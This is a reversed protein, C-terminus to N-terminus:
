FTGVLDVGSPAQAGVLYKALYNGPIYAYGADGWTTSWSNKIIFYGSLPSDLSSSTENLPANPIYKLISSRPVYGIAEVAHYGLITDPNRLKQTLEPADAYGAQVSYFRPTVAFSIMLPQSSNLYTTMLQLSQTPNSFDWLESYTKVRIGSVSSTIPTLYGCQYKQSSSNIACVLDGQHVTNSCAGSYTDCANTIVQLSTNQPSAVYKIKPSQNYQWYRELPFIYGFNKAYNLISETSYGETQTNYSTPLSPTYDDSWFLKSQNYIAQESLNLWIQKHSAIYSELAGAAAFATCSGRSGQDKICSQYNRLAFTFRKMLGISSFNQPLIAGDLGSLSGIEKNCAPPTISQTEALAQSRSSIQAFASLQSRIATKNADSSQIEVTKSITRLAFSSGLLQITKTSGDELPVKIEVQEPLSQSLLGQKQPLKRELEESLAVLNQNSSSTQTPKILALRGQNILDKFASEGIVRSGYPALVEPKIPGPPPPPTPKKGAALAPFAFIAWYFTIVLYKKM